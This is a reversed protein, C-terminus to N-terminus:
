LSVLIIILLTFEPAHTQFRVESEELEAYRPLNSSTIDTEVDGSHYYYGIDKM